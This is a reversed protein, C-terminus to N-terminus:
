KRREILNTSFHQNTILPYGSTPQFYPMQPFATQNQHYFNMPKMEVPLSMNMNPVPIPMNGYYQYPARESNEYSLPQPSISQQFTEASAFKNGYLKPKRDKRYPSYSRSDRRSRRFDKKTRDKSYSRKSRSRSRSPSRRRSKRAESSVSRSRNKRKESSGLRLNCRNCQKRWSFNINNCRSCKWDGEKFLGIPGGMKMHNDGEINDPRKFGCRNCETRKAFNPNGCNRSPCRWDGEKYIYKRKNYM